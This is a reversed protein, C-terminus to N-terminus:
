VRGGNGGRNLEVSGRGRSLNTSIGTATGIADSAQDKGKELIKRVVENEDSTGFDTELQQKSPKTLTGSRGQNSHLVVFSDLVDVLPISSHFSLTLQTKQECEYLANVNRGREVEEPNVIVTYESLSTHDPKYIVKTLAKPMIFANTPPKSLTTLTNFLTATPHPPSLPKGSM